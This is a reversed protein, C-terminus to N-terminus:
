VWRQRRLLQAMCGHHGAWYSSKYFLLPPPALSITKSDKLVFCSFFKDGSLGAPSFMTVEDSSLKNTRKVLM